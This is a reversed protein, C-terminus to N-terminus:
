KLTAGSTLKQAAAIATTAAELIKVATPDDSAKIAAEATDLLADVAHFSKDLTTVAPEVLVGSARLRAAQNVVLTYAADTAAYIERPTKPAIIPQTCAFLAVLFAPATARLSLMVALKPWNNM